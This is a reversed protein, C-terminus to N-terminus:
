NSEIPVLNWTQVWMAAHALVRTLMLNPIGLAQYYAPAVEVSESLVIVETNNKLACDWSIGVNELTSSFKMVEDPKADDVHFMMRRGITPHLQDKTDQKDKVDSM